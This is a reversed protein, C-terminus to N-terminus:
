GHRNWSLHFVRWAPRSFRVSAARPSAAVPVDCRPCRWRRDFRSEGADFIAVFRGDGRRFGAEVTETLREDSVKGIEVRDILVIAEKAADYDVSKTEGLRHVTAGIKLRVWGEERLRDIWQEPSEGEGPRDPFGLTLRTGGAAVISHERVVTQRRM